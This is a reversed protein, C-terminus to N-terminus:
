RRAAKVARVEIGEAVGVTLVTAPRGGAEIRQVVAEGGFRDLVSGIADAFHDRTAEDEWLVYSVLARTGDPREVLVYRDGDWGDALGAEDSGLHEEILVGLELRGLVDEHVVEGGAVELQLEIPDGVGSGSLIEETSSPLHEGFPVVREGAAWLKQLFVAGEAYPFILWEQLVRPAGALAPFQSRVGELDRRLLAGFGPIQGLDVPTGIQQEAMYEFMVLTAHGEIAAQAATARDSGLDPDTLADLDVSQDQVAHVLEHILLGRLDEQPQDDMVFLTTSDPDYFGAVQETYLGMVVQRLDLDAPVLGFLAYADVRAQAEDEPLEEDLKFELYRVLEERSRRELRVPERLEMGSRRALDPLLEAALAALAPDSSVVM